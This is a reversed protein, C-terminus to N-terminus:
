KNILSRVLTGGWLDEPLEVIDFPLNWGLEVRGNSSMLAAEKIKKRNGNEFTIKIDATVDRLNEPWPVAYTRKITKALQDLLEVDFKISWDVWKDLSTNIVNIYGVYTFFKGLVESVGHGKNVEEVTKVVEGAPKNKLEKLLDEMQEQDIADTLDKELGILQWEDTDKIWRVTREVWCGSEDEDEFWNEYSSCWNYADFAQSSKIYYTETEVGEVIAKASITADGHYILRYETNNFFRGDELSQGIGHKVEISCYPIKTEGGTYRADYFQEETIGYRTYLFRDWGNKKVNPCCQLVSVERVIGSYSEFSAISRRNEDYLLFVANGKDDLVNEGVYQPCIVHGVFVKSNETGNNGADTTAVKASYETIGATALFSKGITFPTPIGDEGAPYEYFRVEVASKKYAQGLALVFEKEKQGYDVFPVTCDGYGEWNFALATFDQARLTGQITTGDNELVSNYETSGEGIEVFTRQLYYYLDTGHIPEQESLNFVVDTM